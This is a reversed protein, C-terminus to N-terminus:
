EADMTLAEYRARPNMGCGVHSVAYAVPDGWAALYRRM